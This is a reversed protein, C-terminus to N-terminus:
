RKVMLIKVFILIVFTVHKDVTMSVMRYFLKYNVRTIFATAHLFYQWDYRRVTGVGAATM